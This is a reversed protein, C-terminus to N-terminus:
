WSGGGGGGGGGGSFGGGGGGFGGSSGGSSSTYSSTAAVSSSISRTVTHFVAVDLLDPSDCWDPNGVTNYYKGLEKLWSEEQGFLAAWPLLKEYLKVIGKDSTDAGKVSQLFKLREAEAMGVYLKLGELEREARLGEETYWGYKDKLVACVIGVVWALAILSEMVIMIEKVGVMIAFNDETFASVLIVPMAFTWFGFTFLLIVAVFIMTGTGTRAASEKETLGKGHLLKVAKTAYERAVTAMYSTASHKKIEIVDGTAVSHEGALLKLVNEQPKTLGDASLVNVKWTDKKLVKTPEGKVIQIKKSVALELLTAVYSKKAKKMLLQEGEAVTMKRTPEYEPKVFTSKYVNRKNGVKRKCSRIMLAIIGLIAVCVLSGLILVTYDNKPQPISYTGSKFDVAFTLGENRDLNETEFTYGDEMKTIECRESGKAGYKGVYCSTQSSMVAALAESDAIHLNATVKSFTYNSWGTGNANWYLEQLSSSDMIVNQYSYKLTFTHKGHLYSSSRGIYYIITKDSGMNSLETKAVPFPEGDMLVTLDLTKAKQTIINKGAQNTYPLERVPGHKENGDPFTMDFTEEVDLRTSDGDKSLKYDATFSEINYLASTSTAM